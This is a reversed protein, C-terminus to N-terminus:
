QSRVFKRYEEEIYDLYEPLFTKVLRYSFLEHPSEINLEEMEAKDKDSLNMLFIRDSVHSFPGHGLDHCLCIIRVARTMLPTIESRFEAGGTRVFSHIFDTAVKMVGLSHSFRDHKSSPYTLYATGQQHIGRLRQFLLTDILKREYEYLDIYGYIPDHIRHM